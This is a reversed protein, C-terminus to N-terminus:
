TVWFSSKSRGQHIKSGILDLSWYYSEPKGWWVKWFNCTLNYYCVDDIKPLLYAKLAASFKDLICIGSSLQDQNLNRFRRVAMILKVYYKSIEESAFVDSVDSHLVSQIWGQFTGPCVNVKWTISLKSFIPLNSLTWMRLTWSTIDMVTVSTIFHLQEIILPSCTLM